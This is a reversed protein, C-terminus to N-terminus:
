NKKAHIAPHREDLLREIEQFMKNRVDKLGSKAFYAHAGSTLCKAIDEALISGSLVVVTLMPFSRTQLWQLVEYGTKRPMKLDLLLLDPLPFKQRDAYIGEGKLYAVSEEGDCTEAIVSFRAHNKLALKLMLRDDESDDTILVRYICELPSDSGM